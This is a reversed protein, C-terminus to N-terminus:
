ELRLKRLKLDILILLKIFFFDFHILFKFIALLYECVGKKGSKAVTEQDLLREDGLGGSESECRKSLGGDL